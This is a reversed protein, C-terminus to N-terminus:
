LDPRNKVPDPDLDSKQFRGFVALKRSSIKQAIIPELFYM